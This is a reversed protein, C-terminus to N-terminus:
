EILNQERLALRLKEIRERNVGMDSYGTRSASRVDVTKGDALLELEFDDTFRFILSTATAHIYSPSQEIIETRPTAQIIKIIEPWARQPDQELVFPEIYADGKQRSSVCNPSDPCPAMAGQEDIPNTSSCATSCFGMLTIILLRKLM